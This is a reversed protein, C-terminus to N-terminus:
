GHPRGKSQVTQGAGRRSREGSRIRGTADRRGTLEREGGALERQAERKKM